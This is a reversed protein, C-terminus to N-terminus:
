DEVLGHRWLFRWEGSSRGKVNSSLHPTYSFNPTGGACYMVALCPLVPPPSHVNWSVRCTGAPLPWYLSSSTEGSKVSVKGVSRVGTGLEGWRDQEEQTLSWTCLVCKSLCSVKKEERWYKLGHTVRNPAKPSTKGAVM